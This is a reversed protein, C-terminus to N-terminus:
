GLLDAPDVEDLIDRYRRWWAHLMSVAEMGLRLDGSLEVGAPADLWGLLDPAIHPALPGDALSRKYEELAPGSRWRRPLHPARRTACATSPLMGAPQGLREFVADYLSGGLKDHPDAELAAAAVGGSAGPMLVTAGDGLLGASYASVGRLSRTGYLSLIPQSPHGEFRRTAARYQEWASSEIPGHFEETLARHGVGYRRLTDFLARAARQGNRADLTAETYFHRGACFFVDIAFGDPVPAAVGAVRNAVPVLWAHDVFQYEVRRAREEWDAPYDSAVAELQEHPVGLAAAVPAAFEEEHTDGEDDSATIASAVKGERALALFLIRSDRGGSLPCLVNGGVPALSSELEVVLRDAAAAVTARPVIEEWPSSHTQPRPRGGLRRRLTAFNPLRRVQAFPTREAVPYRLAITAAWAQWDISLPGPSTRALPDIRSAFYLAGGEEIWYIPALGNLSTHLYRKRGEVVLGALGRGAAERWNEVGTRAQWVEGEIWGIGRRKAGSWRIPDRDLM